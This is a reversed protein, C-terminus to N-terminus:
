EPTFDLEKPMPSDNKKYLDELDKLHDGM